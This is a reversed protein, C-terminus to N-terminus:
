ERLFCGAAYADTQGSGSVSRTNCLQSANHPSPAPRGASGDSWAGAGTVATVYVSGNNGVYFVDLQTATQFAATLCAGSPTVGAPTIMVPSAHGPLGDTWAGLGTVATVYVAGNTGAVFADLQTTTQLSSAVYAGPKAIPPTIAVAYARGDQGDSWTGAAVQSTVYVAGDRGVNFLDLQNGNQMGVAVPAGAPALYNPVAPIYQQSGVQFKQPM